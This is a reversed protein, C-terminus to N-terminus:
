RKVYKRCPAKLYKGLYTCQAFTELNSDHENPWSMQKKKVDMEIGQHWVCRIFYIKSNDVRREAQHWHWAFGLHTPGNLHFYTYKSRRHWGETSHDNQHSKGHFKELRGPFKELKGPFKENEPFNKAYLVSLTMEDNFKRENEHKIKWFLYINEIIVHKWHIVKM